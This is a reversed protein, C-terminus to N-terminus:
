NACLLSIIILKMVKIKTIFEGLYSPAINYYSKYTLMLHLNKLITTIHITLIRACRNQLRQLRDTKNRHVNYMISNCYDLQCSILVHIITSCADYSLLNM